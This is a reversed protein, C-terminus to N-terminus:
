ARKLGMATLPDRNVIPLKCIRLYLDHAGKKESEGHFFKEMGCDDGGWVCVVHHIGSQNPVNLHCSVRVQGSPLTPYWDETTPKLTDYRQFKDKM